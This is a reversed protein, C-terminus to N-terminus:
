RSSSAPRRDSPNEKPNEELRSQWEGALRQLLEKEHPQLQQFLNQAKAMLVEDPDDASVPGAQEKLRQRLQRLAEQEAEPLGQISEDLLRKQRELDKM